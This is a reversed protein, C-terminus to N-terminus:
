IAGHGDLASRDCTWGFQPQFHVFNSSALIQCDYSLSEPVGWKSNMPRAWLVFVRASSCCWSYELIASPTLRIPAIETFLHAFILFTRRWHCSWNRYVSVPLYCIDVKLHTLLKPLCICSSLFHGGGEIAHGTETFLHAFILLTGKWHHLWNRCLKSSPHRFALCPTHPRKSWVGLVSKRCGEKLWQWLQYTEFLEGGM